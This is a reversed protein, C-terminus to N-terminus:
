CCAVHRVFLFFPCAILCLHRNQLNQDVCIECTACAYMEFIYSTPFLISLLRVFSVWVHRMILAISLKGPMDVHMAAFTTALVAGVAAADDIQVFSIHGSGQIAIALHYRHRGARVVQMASVVAQPPLTEVALAAVM